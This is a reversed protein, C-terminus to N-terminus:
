AAPSTRRKPRVWVFIDISRFVVDMFQQSLTVSCQVPQNASWTAIELPVEVWLMGQGDALNFEEQKKLSFRM